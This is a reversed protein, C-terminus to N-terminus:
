ASSCVEGECKSEFNLFACHRPNLRYREMMQALLTSKGCRRVGQVVLALSDRLRRPLILDRPVTTPVPDNWFSWYATLERLQDADM